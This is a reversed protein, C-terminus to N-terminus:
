GYQENLVAFCTKITFTHLGQLTMILQTALAQPV